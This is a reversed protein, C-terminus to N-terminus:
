ITLTNQAFVPKIQFPIEEKACMSWDGATRVGGSNPQFKGVM